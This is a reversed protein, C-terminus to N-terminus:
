GEVKFVIRIEPSISIVAKRLPDKGAKLDQGHQHSQPGGNVDAKTVKIVLVRDTDFYTRGKVHMRTSM